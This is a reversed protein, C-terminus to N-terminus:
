FRPGSPLEAKRLAERLAQAVSGSQGAKFRVTVSACKTEFVHQEIPLPKAKEGDGPPFSRRARAQRVTIGGNKVQRWLEDQEAGPAVKAVQLLASRSPKKTDSLRCYDDRIAPGLRTLALIENIVSRPKGVERAIDEQKYGFESELRKYVWAEEFPDLDKRRVNEAIQVKLRQHEAISRVIAPVTSLGAEKAAAYRRHGALIRFRGTETQDVVIPQLVGYERISEALGSLDGLDHRPQQLDPEVEDLPLQHVVDVELSTPDFSLGDGEGRGQRELKETLKTVAGAM